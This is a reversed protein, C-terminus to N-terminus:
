AAPTGDTLSEKGFGILRVTNKTAVAEIIRARLEKLSAPIPSVFVYGKVYGV